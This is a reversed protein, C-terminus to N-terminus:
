PLDLTALVKQVTAIDPGAIVVARDKEWTLLTSEGISEWWMQAAATAHGVGRYKAEAYQRYADVYEERDTVTDWVSAFVLVDLGDKTYVAYRDGGWGESAEAVTDQDVQQALYLGTQFEGLVESEVLTWGIGLTDTLPPLVVLRPEDDALYKQPHLIQETSRPPDSFAADVAEWGDEFLFLVFELGYTYPFLVTERIIPPAADLAAGGDSEAGEALAKIDEQNIDAMHLLLYQSMAQTADGEVLAMRALAEDDSLRDEDVYAELDFHQDQLGHVYEHVFTLRDLLSFEDETVVYLTDVDDEYLGLVEASYIDLLVQRLDYGQEVFDFAALVRVDAKIEEATYNEQFKQDLYVSLERRSLLTRTIPTTENLGR